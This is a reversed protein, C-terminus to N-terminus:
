MDMCLTHMILETGHRDWLFVTGTATRAALLAVDNHSGARDPCCVESHKEIHPCPLSTGTGCVSVYADSAAEVIIFSVAEADLQTAVDCDCSVSQAFSTAFAEAQSTAIATVAVTADACGAPVPIKTGMDLQVAIRLTRNTSRPLQHEHMNVEVSVHRSCHRAAMGSRM